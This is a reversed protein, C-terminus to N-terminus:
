KLMMLSCGSDFEVNLNLKITTSIVNFQNLKQYVYDYILFERSYILMDVRWMCFQKKWFM